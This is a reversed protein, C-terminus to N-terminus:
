APGTDLGWRLWVALRRLAEPDGSDRMLVATVRRSHPLLLGLMMVHHSVYSDGEVEAEVQVGSRLRVWLVGSASVALEVVADDDLLLVHRHLAVTLVTLDVVSALLALWVAIGSAWVCAVFVGHAAVLVAALTRSTRLPLRFM